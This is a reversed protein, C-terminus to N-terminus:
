GSIRIGAVGGFERWKALERTVFERFFAPSTTAPEIYFAERMRSVVDPMAAIENLAENLRAVAESPLGAPGVLGFFTYPQMEVLGKVRMSSLTPVNPLYTQPQSAVVMIPKVKGAKILPMAFPATIMGVSVTGAAIERIAEADSKYPIQTMRIGTVRMFYETELHSASGLGSSEFNLEGPHAKAYAILEDISRAPVSPNVLFVGPQTGIFGVFSFIKLPDYDLDSRVAPAQALSSGTGLYLTYGDAPALQLSRIASLQNAGPKNEVIVSTHLVQSLRQAYLRAVADAAGGAGFGVIITIPRTPYSQAHANAQFLLALAFCLVGWLRLNKLHMGDGHSDKTTPMVNLRLLDINEASEGLL